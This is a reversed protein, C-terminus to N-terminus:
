WTWMRKLGMDVAVVMLLGGDRNASLFLSFQFDLFTSLNFGVKSCFLSPARETSPRKSIPPHLLYGGSNETGGGDRCGYLALLLLRRFLFPLFRGAIKGASRSVDCGYTCIYTRISGEDRESSTRASLYMM